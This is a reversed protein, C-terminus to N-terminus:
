EAIQEIKILSLEMWERQDVALRRLSLDIDPGLTMCNNDVWAVFGLWARPPNAVRLVPLDDVFFDAQRERWEISYSHWETMDLEDLVKEAANIRTEAVRFVLKSMGPLRLVLNGAAMELPNSRGGNWMAAKWGNGRVNRVFRMDGPPSAYFFWVANPPAQVSGTQDFPSNWFGFGATGFLSGATHSFRARVKMRLPSKWRMPEMRHDDIEADSLDGEVAGHVVFRAIGMEHEINAHGVCLRVWYPSLDSEFDDEVVLM